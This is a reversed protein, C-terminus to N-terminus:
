GGEFIASRFTMERVEVCRKLLAGPLDDPRYFKRRHVAAKSKVDQEESVLSAETIGFFHHVFGEGLM